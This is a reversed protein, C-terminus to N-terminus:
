GVLDILPGWGLDIVALGKTTSGNKNRGLCSQNKMM